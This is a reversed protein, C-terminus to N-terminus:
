NLDSNKEKDNKNKQIKSSNILEVIYYKKDISLFELSNKNELKYFDNLLKKSIEKTEFNKKILGTM